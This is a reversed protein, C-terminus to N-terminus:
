SDELEAAVRANGKAVKVKMQEKERDMRRALAPDSLALIQAALVAANLAGWKDLGLTAVPVGPPMQVTALLADMGNLATATLPVGIIPLTSHGALAGALHAAGGAAAILIRIGRSRAEKAYQGALDPTRHASMVRVEFHVGLSTLKDACAKMTPWDSDSGMVIGVRPRSLAKQGIDTRFYAGDWSIRDVARYAGDLAEKIGEGLACVGLVRGGATVTKEGDLATGAQFVVGGDKEARDLGNIEKGKVYSGPYGEAAMVVCASAREEWRPVVRGLDNDLVAEVIEVLDSKLRMLLPQAEPDGMRCNYELVQPGKPTIMLGAYLFGRYDLGEKKLGMVTPYIVEKMVQRTLAEDMVPAPSYAGMGGTNPGRDGDYIAKHDQSSPFPLVREGDTVVIFSAEEGTLREEILIRDGAPGFARDTMILDVARAAEEEDDCVFVGKGAALGDAKVVCPGPHVALHIKAKAPDDFVVFGSTPIGQRAMFEKAEVKSGELFAGARDPGFIRLGNEQFLDVVGLCLPDEPGVVTLDVREKQALALLGQIDDAAVPALTAEKMGDNGPACIVEEVKPSSALKRVFAHERGGSGIVLIKM